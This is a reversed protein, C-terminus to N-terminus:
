KPQDDLAALAADIRPDDGAYSRKFYNYAAAGMLGFAWQINEDRLATLPIVRGRRHHSSHCGHCLTLSNEPDGQDGGRRRVEQRYIVHHSDFPGRGDCWPAECVEKMQSRFREGEIRDNGGVRKGHKYRGNNAGANRPNRRGKRKERAKKRQEPLAQWANFCGRSCFAQMPTKWRWVKFSKGCSELKCTRETYASEGVPTRRKWTKATNRGGVRALRDQERERGEVHPLGQAESGCTACAAPLAAREALKDLDTDKVPEWLQGFANFHGEPCSLGVPVQAM